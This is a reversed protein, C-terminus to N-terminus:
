CYVHKHLVLGRIGKFEHALRAVVKNVSDFELSRGGGEVGYMEKTKKKRQTGTEEEELQTRFNPVLNDSKLLLIDLVLLRVEM